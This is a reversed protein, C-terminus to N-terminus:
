IDTYLDAHISYLPVIDICRHINRVSSYMERNDNKASKM